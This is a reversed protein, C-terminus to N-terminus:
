EMGTTNVGAATAGDELATLHKPSTNTQPNPSNNKDHAHTETDPTNNETPTHTNYECGGDDRWRRASNLTQPLHENPSKPHQEQRTRTNNNETPTHTHSRNIKKGRPHQATGRHEVLQAARRVSLVVVADDERGDPLVHQAGVLPRADHELRQEHELSHEQV